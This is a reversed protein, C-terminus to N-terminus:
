LRHHDDAGVLAAVAHEAILFDVTEGHKREGLAGGTSCPCGRRGAGAPSRPSAERRVRARHREGPGTRAAALRDRTRAVHRHAAAYSEGTKSMRERVRRKFLKQTTM